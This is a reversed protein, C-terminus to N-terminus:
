WYCNFVKHNIDTIQYNQYSPNAKLFPFLLFRCFSPPESGLIGNGSFGFLVKNLMESGEAKKNILVYGFKNTKPPNHM